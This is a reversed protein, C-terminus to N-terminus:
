RDAAQAISKNPIPAIILSREARRPRVEQVYPCVGAPQCFYHEQASGPLAAELMTGRILATIPGSGTTGFAGLSM